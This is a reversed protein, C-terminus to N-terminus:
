HALWSHVVYVVTWALISWRYIRQEIDRWDPPQQTEVSM